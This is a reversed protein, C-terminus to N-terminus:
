AKCCRAVCGLLVLVMVPLLLDTYLTSGANYAAKDALYALQYIHGWGM